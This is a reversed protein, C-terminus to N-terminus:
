AAVQQAIYSAYNGFAQVSPNNLYNAGPAIIVPPYLVINLTVAAGQALATTAASALTVTSGSVSTILVGPYSYKASLYGSSIALFTSGPVVASLSGSSVSITVTTSGVPVASTTTGTVIASYPPGYVADVVPHVGY